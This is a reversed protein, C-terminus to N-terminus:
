NSSRYNNNLDGSFGNFYNLEDYSDVSDINKITKSFRINRMNTTDEKIMRILEKRKMFIINSASVNDHGSIKVDCLVDYVLFDHWDNPVDISEVTIGDPIYEMYIDYNSTPPFIYMRDKIIYYGNSNIDLSYINSYGANLNSAYPIDEIQIPLLETYIRNANMFFVAYIKILDPIEIYKYKPIIDDNIWTDRLSLKRKIYYSPAITRTMGVLTRVSTNLMRKIEDDSLYTDGGITGDETDEIELRELALTRIKKITTAVDVRM